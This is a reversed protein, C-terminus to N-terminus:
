AGDRAADAIRDHFSRRQLATLLEALLGQLPYGLEAQLRDSAAETAAWERELAPLIARSKATLDVIRQRADAGPELSVLGARRMHNVTQSAASHTVQVAAALDRISMPGHAVLARVIPTYRPRFDTLGLDAQFKAVDGDLVDILHRLQTGLGLRDTM